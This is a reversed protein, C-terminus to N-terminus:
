RRSRPDGPLYVPDLPAPARRPAQQASLMVALLTDAPPLKAAPDAQRDLRSLLALRLSRAESSSMGLTGELTDEMTLSRGEPVQRQLLLYAQYATRAQVGRADAASKFQDVPSKEKRKRSRAPKRKRLGTLSGLTRLIAYFLALVPILLLWPTLRQLFSAMGTGSSGLYREAALQMAGINFAYFLLTLSLAAVLISGPLSNARDTVNNEPGTSSAKRREVFVAPATPAPKPATEESDSDTEPSDEGPPITGSSQPTLTQQTEVLDPVASPLEKLPDQAPLPTAIADRAVPTENAGPDTGPPEAVRSEASPRETAPRNLRKPKEPLRRPRRFPDEIEPGNPDM